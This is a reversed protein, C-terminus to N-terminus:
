KELFKLELLQTYEKFDPFQLAKKLADKFFLEAGGSGPVFILHHNNSLYPIM